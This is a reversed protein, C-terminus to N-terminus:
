RKENSREEINGMEAEESFRVVLQYDGCRVEDGSLLVVPSTLKENNLYTGNTSGLDEVWWHGHHFAFIAHRASITDDELLWDCGPHRGVTVVSSHFHKVQSKENGQSNIAITIPPVRRNVLVVSQQQIERWLLYLAWGLFAYLALALIARLALVVPGSM